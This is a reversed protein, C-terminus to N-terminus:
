LPIYITIITGVGIRGEINIKGDLINVREQLNRLGNGLTIESFNFGDGDDSIVIELTETNSIISVSFNSANSHKLTNNLTEQIIRYIYIDVRKSISDIETNYDLNFHIIESNNITRELDDLARKLGYNVLVSPMLNNSINRIEAIVERFGNRIQVIKESFNSNDINEVNMKIAMLQQALGDHLERSLRTREIEQGEIISSLRMIKELEIKEEQVKLQLSMKNFAIILDGIENKLDMNIIRGYDGSYIRETEHKLKRLPGLLSNALVAVFGLLILSITISLFVISNELSNIPIMAEDEDIEAIIVWDLGKIKLPSYSSLVSIDRYDKIIRTSTKGALAEDVAVTKAVVKNVSNNIFRSSTRLYYDKGVLYTEGSEGLGNHVNNELMIDDIFEKSLELQIKGIIMNKRVIVKTISLRFGDGNELTEYLGDKISTIEFPKHYNYKNQISTGDFLFTNGTTDIFVINSFFKNGELFGKLFNEPETALECKSNISELANYDYICDFINNVSSNSALMDIDVNRQNFFDTLRNGKEVRISILQDFTRNLLAKSAEHFSFRGM